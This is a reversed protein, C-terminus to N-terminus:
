RRGGRERELLARKREVGYAYGGLSGDSRLVRHCPILVALGNDGCATGAARVAGPKGIAAAIEGYSRTEGPPIARLAAWVAQQFATGGVDVPLDSAQGPEDILRMVRAAMEELREDGPLIEARPFRAQLDAEGEEFSIRCLGRDTAAILLPGLGTEVVVHRIRVGRGGDKWASPTMGLHREADAYARSPANYGAEYIASTVSAGEELAAKLREARLSRAYAAPTVGTERKFLRHFHHPAYGVHGALEDLSPPTQAAAIFARAAEVAVRDRGVEDPRCRLCARFGAARAAAPDPMFLMNERRPRRAPCSPKCYIRTTLVAGVFRGDWNRDRRAFADWCAEGDPLGSAFDSRKAMENM